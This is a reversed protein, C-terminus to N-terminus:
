LTGGFRRGTSTLSAQAAKRYLPYNLVIERSGDKLEKYPHPNESRGGECERDYRFRFGVSQFDCLTLCGANVYHLPMM